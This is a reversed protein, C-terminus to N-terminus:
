IYKNENLRRKHTNLSELELLKKPLFDKEKVIINKDQFLKDVYEQGETEVMRKYFIAGHGGLFLNDRACQPRLNRLDYRLYLGCSGSPIFHGTQWDAGRLGTRGCTFCVSGYKKRTLEKCLKWIKNKLTKTPNRKKM